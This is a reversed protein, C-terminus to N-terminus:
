ELFFCASAEAEKEFGKFGRSSPACLFQFPIIKTRRCSLQSSNSEHDTEPNAADRDEADTRLTV